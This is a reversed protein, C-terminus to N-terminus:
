NDFAFVVRVDEPPGLTKLTGLCEMYTEGLFDKLKLRQCEAESEAKAAGDNGRMVRWDLIEKEYDVALLEAVTFWSPSHYDSDERAETVWVSGDEPFGKQPSLPEVGSYNRVNALFGFMGYHRVDFPETTPAEYGPFLPDTLLTWKGDKKIEVCSHIDCGM